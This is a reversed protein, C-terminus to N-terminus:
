LEVMLLTFKLYQAWDADEFRVGNTAQRDLTVDLVIPEDNENVFLM